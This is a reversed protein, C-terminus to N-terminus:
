SAWMTIMDLFNFYGLSSTQRKMFTFFTFVQYTNGFFTVVAAYNTFVRVFSAWYSFLISLFGRLVNIAETTPVIRTARQQKVGISTTVRVVALRPNKIGYRSKTKNGVSNTKIIRVM